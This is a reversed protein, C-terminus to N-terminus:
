GHGDSQLSLEIFKPCGMPWKDVSHIRYSEQGFLFRMNEKITVDDPIDTYVTIPKIDLATDARSARAYYGFLESCGLKHLVEITEGTAQNVDHIDCTYMIQINYSM